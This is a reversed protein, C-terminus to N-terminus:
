VNPKIRKQGNQTRDDDMAMNMHKQPLFGIIIYLYQNSTTYEVGDHGDSWFNDYKKLMIQFIYLFVNSYSIFIVDVILLLKYNDATVHSPQKFHHPDNIM